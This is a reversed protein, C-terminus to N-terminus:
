TLHSLRFSSASKMPSCHLGVQHEGSITPPDFFGQPISGISREEGEAASVEQASHVAGASLRPSGFKDFSARQYAQLSSYFKALM